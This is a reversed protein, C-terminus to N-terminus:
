IPQVLLFVKSLIIDMELLTFRESGRKRLLDLDLRHCFVSRCELDKLGDTM